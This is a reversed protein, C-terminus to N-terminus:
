PSPSPHNRLPVAVNLERDPFNLTLRRWSEYSDTEGLDSSVDSVLTSATTATGDPATCVVEIIRLPSDQTAGVTTIGSPSPDAATVTVAFSWGTYGEIATGNRFTPPAVVLGNYDDVDDLTTRTAAMEDAEIGFIPDTRDAFDMSSVEDLIQGTLHHGASRHRSLNHNRMLNASATVTVLLVTSVLVISIMVEILTVGKRTPVRRNM